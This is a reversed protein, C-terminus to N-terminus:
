PHTRKQEHLTRTPIYKLTEGYIVETLHQLAMNVDLSLISEWHYSSLTDVLTDWKAQKYDWVQRTVTHGRPPQFRFTGLTACHDAVM